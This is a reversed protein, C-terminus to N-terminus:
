GTPSGTVRRLQVRWEFNKQEPAGVVRYLRSDVLWFFEATGTPSGALQAETYDRTIRSVLLDGSEYRGPADFILRAPPEKVKPVPAIATDVDTATGAGIESGSWTRVRTSVTRARLGLDAILDRADDVVPQLDDRLSM